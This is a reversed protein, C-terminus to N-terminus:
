RRVKSIDINLQKIETLEDFCWDSLERGLGSKKVGGFPSLQDWCNNTENILVTGCEIGEGLLFATRLDSTFAAGQLGYPTENAIRLCEDMDKFTMIPAVPGFTEHRAMLFDSTVGDVITVDSYMGDINGGMLFKGGRERADDYHSKVKELNSPNNLPGMDTDEDLPNGVKVKKARAVLKEVFEDHVAEHVLIRESATCVQGALYFCGVITAEVAEEINADEWVVLPGNGGLELMLRKIGAIRTLYEGTTTEGTFHIANTGPNSVLESGVTSGPGTVVNVAGPPFGAEEYVQALMLASFPTTSAPKVIVANGAALAHTWAINPIDHPWNWPSIVGIVGMPQRMVLIRKNLTDEQISPNIKGRYRKIGEAAEIFHPNSYNNIEDRAETITKGCERCLIRADHELRGYSIESAKYLLKARAPISLSAMAKHAKKAAEIAKQVDEATGRPVSGIRSGDGPSYVDFREGSVSEVWEGGIYMKMDMPPDSPAPYSTPYPSKVEQANTAM